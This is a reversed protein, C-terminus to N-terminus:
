IRKQILEKPSVKEESFSFAQNLLKISSELRDESNYYIKLLPEDAKVADGIKKYFYFGVEPDIRDELVKRGGGLEVCAWGVKENDIGKVFGTSNILKFDYTNKSIKLDDGTWGQAKFIKEAVGFVKGSKLSTLLRQYHEEEPKSDRTHLLYAGLRLTLEITDPYEKQAHDTYNLIEFCEKMEIANGVSRGLPQSMDSILACAKLGLSESTEVLSEALKVSEDFDKIFAGSGTKVDYVISSVGEAVKKSVISATILELSSVTATVDRLAYLKKDAPCLDKTQGIIAAGHNLVCSEFDELSLGTNFGKLSELKDLTGGTHGLGRGAMMPVYMGVSALLPALIMSTKDGTGGTSHKDICKNSESGWDLQVGSNIYAKTLNMKESKDLGQYYVAMLFASMQYEPVHGLHYSEILSSIEESTLTTKNQVKRILQVPSM